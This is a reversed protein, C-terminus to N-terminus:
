CVCARASRGCSVCGRSRSSTTRHSKPIAHGLAHRISKEASKVHSMFGNLRSTARRLARPNLSNMHRRKVCQSVPSKRAKPQTKRLHYGVGCAPASQVSLTPTQALPGTPTPAELFGQAIDMGQSFLDLISTPRVSPFDITGGSTSIPTFDLSSYDVPPEGEPLPQTPDLEPLSSTLPEPTGGLVDVVLPDSLAFGPFVAAPAYPVQAFQQGFSQYDSIALGASIPDFAVDTPALVDVVLTCGGDPDCQYLDAM